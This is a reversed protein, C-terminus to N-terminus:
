AKICNGSEHGYWNINYKSTPPAALKLFNSVDVKM